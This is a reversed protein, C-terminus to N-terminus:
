ERPLQPLSILFQPFAMAREQGGHFSCQDLIHRSNFFAHYNGETFFIFMRAVIIIFNPRVLQESSKKGKSVVGTELSSTSWRIKGGPRALTSECERDEHEIVIGENYWYIIIVREVYWRLLPKEVILPSHIYALFFSINRHKGFSCRTTLIEVM